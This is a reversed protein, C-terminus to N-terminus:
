YEAPPGAVPKRGIEQYFTAVDQPTQLDRTTGDPFFVQAGGKDPLAFRADHAGHLVRPQDLLNNVTEAVRRTDPNSWDKLIKGDSAALSVNRGKADPNIVGLMDYDAVLPKRREPHIVQGPRVTWQPKSAFKLEQGSANRAIGDADIVFFGKGRAEAAEAANSATVIGLDASTKANIGLPKAPYGQEIWQTSAPNSNRVVIIRNTRRAATTFAHYHGSTMGGRGSGGGAAAAPTKANPTYGGCIKPGLPGAAGGLAMMVDFTNQAAVARQMAEEHSLGQARNVGYAGAGITNRTMWDLEDLMAARRALELEESSPAYGYPSTTRCSSLAKQVATQRDYGKDLLEGMCANDVRVFDDASGQSAVPTRNPQRSNYYDQIVKDERQRQKKTDSECPLTALRVALERPLLPWKAAAQLEFKVKLRGAAAHRKYNEFDHGGDSPKKPALAAALRRLPSPIYGPPMPPGIQAKTKALAKQITEPKKGYQQWWAMFTADVTATDLYRQGMVGFRRETVLDHPIWPWHPWAQGSLCPTRSFLGYYPQLFETLGVHLEQNGV